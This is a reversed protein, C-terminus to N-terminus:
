SSKIILKQREENANEYDSARHIANRQAPSRSNNKTRSVGLAGIVGVALLL